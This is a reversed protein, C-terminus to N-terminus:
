DRALYEAAPEGTATTPDTRSAALWPGLMAALAAGIDLWHSETGDTIVGALRLSVILAAVAAYLRRVDTRRAKITALVQSGVGLAATAIGAAGTVVDERVAGTIVLLAGLTAITGHILKRRAPTLWEDLRAVLNSMPRTM